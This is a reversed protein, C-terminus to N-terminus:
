LEADDFWIIDSSATRLKNVGLTLQVFTTDDPMETVIDYVWTWDSGLVTNASYCYEAINYNSDYFYIWIGAELTSPGKVWVSYRYYQNPDISIHDTTRWEVSRDDEVNSISLSFFGSMAVNSDWNYTADPLSEYWGDPAISGIKFSSNKLLFDSYNPNKFINLYGIHTNYDFETSYIFREDIFISAM